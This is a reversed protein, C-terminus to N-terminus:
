WGWRVLIGYCLQGLLLLPALRMTQRDFSRIRVPSKLTPASFPVRVGVLWCFRSRGTPVESTFGV